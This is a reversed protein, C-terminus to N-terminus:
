LGGSQGPCFFSQEPIHQRLRSSQKPAAALSVAHAAERYFIDIQGTLALAACIQIGEHTIEVSIVTQWADIRGCAAPLDEISVQIDDTGQHLARDPLAIM